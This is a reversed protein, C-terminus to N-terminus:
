VKHVHFGAGLVESVRELDWAGDTISATKLCLHDSKVALQRQGRQASDTIYAPSSSFKLFSIPLFTFYFPLFFLLM